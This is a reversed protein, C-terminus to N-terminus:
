KLLKKLPKNEKFYILLSNGWLGFEVPYMNGRKPLEVIIFSKDENGWDVGIKYKEKPKKM